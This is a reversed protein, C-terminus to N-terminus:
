KLLFQHHRARHNQLVRALIHLAGQRHLVGLQAIEVMVVRLLVAKKGATEGMASVLRRSDNTANEEMVSPSLVAWNARGTMQVLAIKSKAM